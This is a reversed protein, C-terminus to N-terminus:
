YFLHLNIEDGNEELYHAIQLFAGTNEEDAPRGIKKKKPYEDSNYQLPINQQTCFNLSCTQHYVADTAPVDHNNILRGQVCSVLQRTKRQM